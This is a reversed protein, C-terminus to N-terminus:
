SARAWVAGQGFYEARECVVALSRQFLSLAQALTVVKDRPYSDDMSRAEVTTSPEWSFDSGSWIVIAVHDSPYVMDVGVEQVVKTIDSAISLLQNGAVGHDRFRIDRGIVDPVSALVVDFSYSNKNTRLVTTADGFIHVTLPGGPNPPAASEPHPDECLLSLQEVSLRTAGRVRGIRELKRLVEINVSSDTLGQDDVAMSVPTDYGEEVLASMAVIMQKM